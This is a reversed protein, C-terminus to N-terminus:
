MMGRYTDTDTQRDTETRTGTDLTSSAIDIAEPQVPDPNTLKASLVAQQPRTLPFTATVTTSV